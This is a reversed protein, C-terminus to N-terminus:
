SEDRLNRAQEAFEEAMALASRCGAVHVEARELLHARAKEFSDFYSEYETLKARRRGNIWVNSETEREVEVPSIRRKPDKHIAVLRYKLM